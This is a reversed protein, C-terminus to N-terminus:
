AKAQTERDFLRGSRDEFHTHLLQEARESLPAGYFARYLTQVEANEHSMRRPAGKDEAYLAEMRKRRVAEDAPFESKPQGGGGLCGGPCAMFEIFQWRSRGTRRVEELVRRAAECGDLLGLRLHRAAAHHM